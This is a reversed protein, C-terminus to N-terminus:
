NGPVTVSKGFFTCITASPVSPVGTRSRFQSACDQLSARQTWVAAGLGVLLGIMLLKTIVRRIVSAVVIALVAFVVLAGIAVNKATELTLAFAHM